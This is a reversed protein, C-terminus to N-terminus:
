NEKLDTTINYDAELKKRADKISSIYGMKTSPQVQGNPTHIEIKEDESIFNEYIAIQNCLTKIQVSKSFIAQM